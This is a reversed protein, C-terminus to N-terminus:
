VGDVSSPKLVRNLLNEIPLAHLLLLQRPVTQLFLQPTELFHSDVELEIPRQTSINSGLLESSFVGCDDYRSTLAARVLEADGAFVGATRSEACNNSVRWRSCDM